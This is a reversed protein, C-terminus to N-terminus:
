GWVESISEYLEKSEETEETAEEESEVSTQESIEKKVDEHKKNCGTLLLALTLIVLWKEYERRVRM